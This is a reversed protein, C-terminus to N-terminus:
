SAIRSSTVFALFDMMLATALGLAEYCTRPGGLSSRSGISFSSYVFIMTFARPLAFDAGFDLSIWAVDLRIWISGFWFRALDM